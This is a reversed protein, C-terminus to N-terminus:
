YKHIINISIYAMKAKTAVENEKAATEKAEMYDLHKCNTYM